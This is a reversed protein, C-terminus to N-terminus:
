KNSSYGICVVIAAAIDDMQASTITGLKKIFREEAASKIQFVNAGSEKDLGNTLTAPLHVMWFDQSFRSQWSTLPVIMHLRMRWAARINIVVAPRTKQIEQGLAPDFNVLWIDGRSIPNSPMMM